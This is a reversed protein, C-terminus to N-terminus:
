CQVLLSAVILEQRDIMQKLLLGQQNPSGHGRLGGLHGLHANFDGAILMPNSSHSSVIDDLSSLCERYEEDCGYAPFYVNVVTLTIGSLEIEVAFVRDSTTTVPSVCLSSNWQFAVGGCGRTLNSEATLRSDSTAFSSFGPLVTNLQDLEFPWLWHEQLLIIDSNRKQLFQLYPIATSFGRCNWTTIKIEKSRSNRM